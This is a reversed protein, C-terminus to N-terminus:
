ITVTASAPPTAGGTTVQIRYGGAEEVWAHTAPDRYRLDARRIVQRVVKTEGPQLAVRSFAKLYAAWREVAKGPPSVFTLGPTESVVAGTNTVAVSVEIADATVRAKVARCAFDTYSLGHGYGYRPELGERSFKAYGHWLDYTVSTAAIDFAPYEEPRKAVTFPLRGSPSM